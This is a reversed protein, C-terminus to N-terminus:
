GSPLTPISSATASTPRIARSASRTPRVMVSNAGALSSSARSPLRTIAFSQSAATVAHRAHTSSCPHGLM